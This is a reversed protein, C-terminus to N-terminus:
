KKSLENRANVIERAFDKISFHRRIGQQELKVEELEARVKEYDATVKQYEVREVKFKENDAKVSELEETLRKFDLQNPLSCIQM